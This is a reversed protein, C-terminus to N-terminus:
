EEYEYDYDDSVDTNIEAFFTLDDAEEEEEDEDIDVGHDLLCNKIKDYLKLDDDELSEEAVDFWKLIIKLEEPKLHM